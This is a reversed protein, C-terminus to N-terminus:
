DGNVEEERMYPEYESGPSRPATAKGSSCENISMCGPGVNLTLGQPTRRIPTPTGDLNYAARVANDTQGLAVRQRRSTMPTIHPRRGKLPDPQRNKAQRELKAILEFFDAENM